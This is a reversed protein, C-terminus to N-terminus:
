YMGFSGIYVVAPRRFCIHFAFLLPDLVLRNSGSPARSYVHSMSQGSSVTSTHQTVHHPRHPFCFISRAFFNQPESKVDQFILSQKINQNVNIM